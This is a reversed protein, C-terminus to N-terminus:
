FNKIQVTGLVSLDLTNLVRALKSGESEIITADKKRSLFDCNFIM